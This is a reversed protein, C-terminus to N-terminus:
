ASSEGAGRPLPRQRRPGRLHHWVRNQARRTQHHSRLPGHRVVPKQYPHGQHRRSWRGRGRISVTGAGTQTSTQSESVPSRLAALRPRSPALWRWGSTGATRPVSLCARPATPCPGPAHRPKPVRISFIRIFTGLRSFRGRSSMRGTTSAASDSSRSESLQFKPRM